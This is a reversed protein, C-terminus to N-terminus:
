CGGPPGYAGRGPSPDDVTGPQGNVALHIVYWQGRWSIFSSIGFSRVRGNERYVLRSGPAHWYGIGNECAGPPIWAWEKPVTVYLLKASRAGAGLLGHAAQIDLRYSAILRLEYDSAPDPIQGKKMRLYASRPFFAPMAVALSNTAIGRWLDEM